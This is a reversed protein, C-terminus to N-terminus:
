DSETLLADYVRQADANILVSQGRGGWEYYDVVAYDVEGDVFVFTIDCGPGGGALTFRRTRLSEDGYHSEANLKGSEAMLLLDVAWGDAVEQMTEERYDSTHTRREHLQALRAERDTM